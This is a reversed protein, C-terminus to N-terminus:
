MDIIDFVVDNPRTVIKRYAGRARMSDQNAMKAFSDM